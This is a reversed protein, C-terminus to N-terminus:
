AERAFNVDVAAISSRRRKTSSGGSKWDKLSTLGVSRVQQHAVKYAIAMINM